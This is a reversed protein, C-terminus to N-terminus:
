LIIICARSSILHHSFLPSVSSVLHLVFLPIAFSFFPHVFVYEICGSGVLRGSVRWCVPTLIGKASARSSAAGGIEWDVGMGLM